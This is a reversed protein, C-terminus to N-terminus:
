CELFLKFKHNNSVNEKLWLSFHNQLYVIDKGMEVNLGKFALNFGM